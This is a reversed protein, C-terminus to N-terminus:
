RHFYDPENGRKWKINCGLSHRQEEPVKGGGLVADLAARLDAGTVPKNNGPRSADYQGRYVLRRERDFLYFDPTCAARYAKAVEQSEDYLYPFTYGFTKAEEAMKEPADDPYSRIDNSSIGVVAVGRAQYDRVLQAFHSRIHKVYPCHNCIFAVLLAPAQQFDDLSALKGALDPLRFPPAKMGLPAMTSPTEAM